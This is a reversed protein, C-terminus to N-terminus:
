WRHGCGCRHATRRSASREKLGEYVGDSARVSCRPQTNASCLQTSQLGEAQICALASYAHLATNHVTKLGFVSAYEAANYLLACTTDVEVPTFKMHRHEASARHVAAHTLGIRRVARCSCGRMQQEALHNSRCVVCQM